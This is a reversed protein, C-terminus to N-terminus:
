YPRARHKIAPKGDGPCKRLRHSSLRLHRYGAKGRFNPFHLLQQAGIGLIGLTPVFIGYDVLQGVVAFRPGKAMM